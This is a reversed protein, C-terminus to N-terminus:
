HVPVERNDESLIHWQFAAGKEATYCRAIHTEFAGTTDKWRLAGIVCLAERGDRLKPIDDSKLADGVFTYFAMPDGPVLTGGSARQTIRSQYEQFANDVSETPVVVLAASLVGGTIPVKGANHFGINLAPVENQKFPLLPMTIIQGPIDFAVRGHVSLQTDQTIVQIQAELRRQTVGNRITAFVTLGIGALGLLGIVVANRQRHEKVSIDVAYLTIILQSASIGVGVLVDWVM